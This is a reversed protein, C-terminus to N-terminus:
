DVRYLNRGIHVVCWTKFTNQWPSVNMQNPPFDQEPMFIFCLNTYYTCIIDTKMRQKIYCKHIYCKPSSLQHANRTSFWNSIRRFQPFTASLGSFLLSSNKPAHAMESQPIYSKSKTDECTIKGFNRAHECYESKMAAKSKKVQSWKLKM